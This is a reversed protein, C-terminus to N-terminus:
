ISVQFIKLAVMLVKSVQPSKQYHHDEIANLQLYHYFFIGFCSKLVVVIKEVVIGLNRYFHILM